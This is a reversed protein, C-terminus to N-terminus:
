SNEAYIFSEDVNIESGAYRFNGVCNNHAHQGNRTSARAIMFLSRHESAPLRFARTCIPRGCRKRSLLDRQLSYPSAASSHTARARVTSAKSQTLQFTNTSGTARLGPAKPELRLSSAAFAM